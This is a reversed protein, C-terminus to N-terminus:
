HSAVLQEVREVNAPTAGHLMIDARLDNIRKAHRTRTRDREAKVKVLEARLRAWASLKHAHLTIRYGDCTCSGRKPPNEDVHVSTRVQKATAHWPASSIRKAIRDCEGMVIEEMAAELGSIRTAFAEFTPPNIARNM